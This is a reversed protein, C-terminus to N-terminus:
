PKFSLQLETVSDVAHAVAEKQDADLAMYSPLFIGKEKHFNSRAAAIYSNWADEAGYAANEAFAIWGEKTHAPMDDYKGMLYRSSEKGTNELIWNDFVEDSKDKHNVTAKLEYWNRTHSLLKSKYAEYAIQAHM